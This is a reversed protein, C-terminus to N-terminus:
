SVHKTLLRLLLTFSASSHVLLLEAMNRDAKHRPPAAPLTHDPQSTDYCEFVILAHLPSLQLFKHM